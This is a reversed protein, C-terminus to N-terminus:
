LSHVSIAAVLDTPPMAQAHGRTEADAVRRLYKAAIQDLPETARAFRDGDFNDRGLSPISELIEHRLQRAEDLSRRAEALDALYYSLVGYNTLPVVDRDDAKMARAFLHRAAIYSHHRVALVGLNNLTPGDEVGLALVQRYEVEARASDGALQATLARRYAADAQHQMAFPQCGTGGLGAFLFIVAAFSWKMFSLIAQSRRPEM